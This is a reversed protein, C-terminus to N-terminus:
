FFIDIAPVILGLGIMELIAGIIIFFTITFFTRKQNQTLTLYILKLSYM